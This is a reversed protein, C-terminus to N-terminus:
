RQQGLISAFDRREHLVRVIEVRTETVRYFLTYPHALLSRLGPKVDERVRGLFPRADLRRATAAIEHVLTDAIELSAVRAYYDWARVLDQKARPSWVIRRAM